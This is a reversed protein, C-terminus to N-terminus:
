DTSHPRSPPSGLGRRLFFHFFVFICICFVFIYFIFCLFTPRYLTQTPTLLKWLEAVKCAKKRKRLMTLSLCTSPEQGTAPPQLRAPLASHMVCYTWTCFQPASLFYLHIDRAGWPLTAVHSERENYSTSYRGSGWGVAFQRTLYYENEGNRSCLWNQICCWM